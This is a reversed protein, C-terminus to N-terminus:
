AVCSLLECRAVLLMPDRSDLKLESRRMYGGCGPLAQIQLCGGFVGLADVWGGPSGCGCAAPRAGGERGNM